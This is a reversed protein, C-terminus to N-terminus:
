KPFYCYKLYLAFGGAKGECRGAMTAKDGAKLAGAKEEASKDDKDLICM